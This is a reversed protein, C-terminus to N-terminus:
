YMELPADPTAPRARAIWESAWARSFFGARSGVPSPAAPSERRPCLPSFAGRRWARPYAQASLPGIADAPLIGM